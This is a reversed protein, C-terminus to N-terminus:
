AANSNASKSPLPRGSRAIPFKTEPSAVLASKVIQHFSGVRSASYCEESGIAADANFDGLRYRDPRNAAPAVTAATETDMRVALFAIPRPLAGTRSQLKRALSRGIRQAM